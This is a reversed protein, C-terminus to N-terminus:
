NVNWDIELNIDRASVLTGNPNILSERGPALYVKPALATVLGDPTDITVYELWVIDSTLLAVMDETITMGFSWGFAGAAEVGALMLAMYQDEDSSYNSLFRQGTLTAIQERVLRQEYFGDGIRKHMSNSDIGLRSIMYDSSLWQRYDTLRPNTEVLYKATPAMNFSFMNANLAFANELSNESHSSATLGNDPSSSKLVLSESHPSKFLSGNELSSTTLSTDLIENENLSNGTLSPGKFLVDFFSNNVSLKNDNIYQPQSGATKSGVVRSPSSSLVIDKEEYIVVPPPNHKWPNAFPYGYRSGGEMQTWQYDGFITTTKPELAAINNFAGSRNSVNNLVGGVIIRSKDNTLNGAMVFSGGVTIFGPRSSTVFTESITETLNYTYFDAVSRWNITANTSHTGGHWM